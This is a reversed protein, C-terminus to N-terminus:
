EPAKLYGRRQLWEKGATNKFYKERKRALASDQCTETYIIIWSTGRRTTYNRGSNHDDMRKSLSQTMGTYIFGEDSQIVYVYWPKM